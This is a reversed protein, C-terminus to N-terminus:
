FGLCKRRVEAYEKKLGKDVSIQLPGIEINDNGEIFVPGDKTLAIDWGIIPIGKLKYHLSIAQQLAQNYNPLQYNEFVFGTEPHRDTKGGNGHKFFGYKGLKGSLVDVGILIGGIAWNDVELNYAGARYLGAFPLVQQKEKDYYTTIRVTNLSKPYIANIEPLQEVINQIIYPTRSLRKILLGKAEELAYQSNDIMCKEDSLVFLKFAGEGCQGNIPKCFWGGGCHTTEVFDMADQECYIKAIIHPTNYGWMKLMEGFLTKDRLICTYDLDVQVLNLMNNQWMFEADDMYDNRNRFGKIDFGYTFYHWEISGYKIIHGLLERFIRFRSKQPLEPYYSDSKAFGSRVLSFPLTFRRKMLSAQRALKILPYYKSNM